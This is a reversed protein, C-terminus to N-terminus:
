CRIMEIIKLQNQDKVLVYAAHIAYLLQMSNMSNINGKPMSYKDYM